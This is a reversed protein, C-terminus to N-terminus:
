MARPVPDYPGFVDQGGKLGPVAAFGAGPKMQGQVIGLRNNLLFGAGLGICLALITLMRKSMTAEAFNGNSTRRMSLSLALPELGQRREWSLPWVMRGCGSRTLQKQPRCAIM